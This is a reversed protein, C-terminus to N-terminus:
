HFIYVAGSGPASVDGQNGGVGTAASGEQRARVVLTDGSLAVSNGFVDYEGTSPAKLCAAQQWVTGDHRFVYVAGSTAAANRRGPAPRVRGPAPGSGARM